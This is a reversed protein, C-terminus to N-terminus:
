PTDEVFARQMRQVHKRLCFAVLLAGRNPDARKQIINKIRSNYM